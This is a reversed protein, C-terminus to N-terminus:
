NKTYVKLDKIYLEPFILNNFVKLTWHVLKNNSHNYIVMPHNQGGLRMKAYYSTQGLGITPYGHQIGYAIVANLLNFYTNYQYRYEEQIGILMFTLKHEEEALLANGIILDDKKLLLLKGKTSFALVNRFFDINLYELINTAKSMINLYQAYLTDADAPNLVAVELIAHDSNLRTGTVGVASLDAKPLSKLIQRRFPHRLRQLYEAFSNFTNNFGLYPISWAKIFGLEELYAAGSGPFFEKFCTVKIKNEAAIKKSEDALIRIIESTQLPDKILIADKGLSIPLGCFLFRVKMFQPFVMRTFKVAKRGFGELFLGLNMRFSCFVAAASLSDGNYILVYWFISNEIDSDEIIKIFEHSKFYDGTTNLKDWDGPEIATISRVM